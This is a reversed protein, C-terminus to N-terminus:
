EISYHAELQENYIPVTAMLRRDDTRKEVVVLRRDPLYAQVEDQNRIIERGGDVSILRETVKGKEVRHIIRFTETRSNRVHLYRGDYNRTALSESMRELWERAARDAADASGMATLAVAALAVSYKLLAMSTKNNLSHSRRNRRLSNTRARPQLTRIAM